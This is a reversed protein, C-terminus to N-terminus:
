KAGENRPDRGAARPWRWAYIGLFVAIVANIVASVGHWMPSMTFGFVTMTTASFALAGHALAHFAEFGCAFKAIERARSM